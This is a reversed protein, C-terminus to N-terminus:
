WDRLGKERAKKEYAAEWKPIEADWFTWGEPTNRHVADAHKYYKDIHCRSMSLPREDAKLKTCEIRTLDNLRDAPDWWFTCDPHQYQTALYKYKLVCSQFISADVQYWKKTIKRRTGTVKERLSTKFFSYEVSYAPAGPTLGTTDLDIKWTKSDGIRRIANMNESPPLSKTYDQDDDWVTELTKWGRRAYKAVQQWFLANVSTIIAELPITTTGIIQVKVENEEYRRKVLTIIQTISKRKESPEEPDFIVSVTYGEFNILHERLAVVSQVDEEDERKVYIDLDSDRWVVREFLQLATSGSILANYQGLKSRLAVPDQVFRRILRKINFQSFCISPYLVTFEKATARLSLIERPELYACLTDFILLLLLCRWKSSAM